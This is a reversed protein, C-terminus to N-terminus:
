GKEAWYEEDHATRYLAEERKTLDDMSHDETCVLTLFGDPMLMLADESVNASPEWRWYHIAGDDVEAVAAMFDAVSFPVEQWKGEEILGMTSPARFRVAKDEYGQHWSYAEYIGRYHAEVTLWKM